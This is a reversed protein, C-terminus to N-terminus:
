LKKMTFLAQLFSFEDLLGDRLSIRPAYGLLHRAKRIDACTHLVDGPQKDTSVTHISTGTLAELLTLVQRLSAQAGGAINFIQGAIGSTRAALLNAEVIDSVHTFDRTASGDGYLFVPQQRLVATCFRAFAMDPRQRAGYVTFYRLCVTPLYFTHYYLECLHEGALKTIGYPSAPRPPCTENVPLAAAHGYISSSSAYVFRQINGAQQAAELLYHTALINHQVYQEFEQGWSTRVGAQAAQHFIWDVGRLLPLLDLELLDGELFTFRQWSRLPQLNEEKRSRSYYGLFADVGTVDHGETLLREALHSGIFGAVGTVLCRM